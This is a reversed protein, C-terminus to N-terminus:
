KAVVLDFHFAVLAEAWVGHSTQSRIKLSRITRHDIELSHDQIITTQAQFRSGTSSSAPISMHIARMWLNGIGARNTAHAEYILAQTLQGMLVLYEIPTSNAQSGAGNDEKTCGADQSCGEHESELVPVGAKVYRVRCPGAAAVTQAGEITKSSLRTTTSHRLDIGNAPELAIRVRINGVTASIEASSHGGLDPPQTLDIPVHDLDTWPTNGARLGLSHVRWSTLDSADPAPDLHECVLLPLVIADVSSLHPKRNSGDPNLSWGQPYQVLGHYRAGPEPVAEPLPELFHRVKKYGAGFYRGEAPGLAAELTIWDRTVGM